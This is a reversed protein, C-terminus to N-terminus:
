GVLWLPCDRRMAENAALMLRAFAVVEPPDALGGDGSDHILAALADDDVPLSWREALDFLERRLGTLSACHLPGGRSLPLSVARVNAPLFVGRGETGLALLNTLAEPGIVARAREQLVAWGGSDFEGFGRHESGEWDGEAGFAQDILDAVETALHNDFTGRAGGVSCTLGM